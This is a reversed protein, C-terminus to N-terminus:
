ARCLEVRFEDEKTRAAPCQLMRDVGSRYEYDWNLEQRKTRREKIAQYAWGIGVVIPIGSAFPLPWTFLLLM